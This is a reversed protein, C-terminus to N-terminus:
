ALVCLRLRVWLELFRFAEIVPPLTMLRENQDHHERMCGWVLAGVALAAMGLIIFAARWSLLQTILAGIAPSTIMGLTLGAQVMVIQRMSRGGKADGALAFAIPLMGASAIGTVVRTVLAWEFQSVLGTLISSIGFVFCAPLMLRLRGVRDSWRGLYPACFAIALSYATIFLTVQSPPVGLDGGIPELISGLLLEDAGVLFAIFFLAISQIM